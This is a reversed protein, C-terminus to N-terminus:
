RSYQVEPLTYNHCAKLTSSQSENASEELSSGLSPPKVVRKHRNPYIPQGCGMMPELEAVLALAVAIFIKHHLSFIPSITIYYM